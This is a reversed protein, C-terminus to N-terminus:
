QRLVVVMDLGTLRIMEQIPEALTNPAVYRVHDDPFPEVARVLPAAKTATGALKDNFYLLCPPSTPQKGYGCSFERMQEVTVSAGNGASAQLTVGGLFVQIGQDQLGAILMSTNQETVSTSGGTRPIIMLALYIEGAKKQKADVFQGGLTAAHAGFAIPFTQQLSLAIKDQRVAAVQQQLGQVDGQQHALTSRLTAVESQSRGISAALEKAAREVDAVKAGTTQVSQRVEGSTRLAASANEQAQKAESRAQELVPQVAQRAGAALDRVDAVSKGFILALVVFTVAIPIGAFYAWLKVWGMVTTAVNAATELEVSKQDKRLSLEIQRLRSDLDELNEPSLKAGCSGCFRQSDPAETSCIPCAKAVSQETFPGGRRLDRIHACRPRELV